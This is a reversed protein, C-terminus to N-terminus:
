RAGRAAALKSLERVRLVSNHTPGFADHFLREARNLDVLAEDVRGSELLASGRVELLSGYGAGRPDLSQGLVQRARDASALASRVQGARLQLRALRILDAGVVRASPGFLATADDIARSTEDIARPLEGTAALAQARAVRAKLVNAHTYSGGYAELARAVSTEGTQRAAAAEGRALQAYCVDVLALVVQNHHPHLRTKAIRLAEQAASEALAYDGAELAAGSRIRHAGALDEPLTAPSRSMDELLPGIEARVEAIQGRFYRIWQKLLRARLAMPHGSALAAADQLARDIVAESERIEHQSLLGAGVIDLVEVRSATDPLTRDSARADANRLLDLASRPKGSGWYSHADLLISILFAKTSEAREKQALAIRVEWAIAVGAALLVTVVASAAVVGIRHRRAFKALRYWRSDPRALVPRNKLCRRVDDAFAEVTPYREAVDKKLAKLLITDLDGRIARRESAGTVVESPRRPEETLVADELAARSPRKHRYPLTGALMEYLVVGLSYVDSAVTLPQGLVQEPSAYDLTLAAASNRTLETERTVGDELLKAIGFDLVRIGGSETVLINSPKLDRHLILNNHAYNVATAVELFLELRSAVSLKRQRCYSSIPLGDVYELALYPRGDPTIGAECLRAINPHRLTLLVERERVIREMLVRPSGRFPLKIAVPAAAGGDGREALWVSGMGGEGIKRVLRWAGISDGALQESTEGSDDLGHPARGDGDRNLAAALLGGAIRDFQDEEAGEARAHAALLRALRSLLQTDTGCASKLYAARRGPPLAVCQNFLDQERGNVPPM